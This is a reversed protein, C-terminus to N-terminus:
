RGIMRSFWGKGLDDKCSLYQKQYRVSRERVKDASRLLGPKGKWTQRRFGAMGEHYSLYYNYADTKKIGNETSARTLYYNVFDLADRFQNRKRWYDGTDRIYEAWTGDIVQAYGYASSARRGPIFGLHWKRPPRARRQFASEQYIIAMPIQLPIGWKKQAKVSAKYWDRKDQYIDCINEPNKLGSGGCASLLCIMLVLATRTRTRVTM